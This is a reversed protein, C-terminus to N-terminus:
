DQQEADDVEEPLVGNEVLLEYCKQKILQVPIVNLKPKAGEMIPKSPPDPPVIALVMRLIQRGDLKIERLEKDCNRCWKHEPKADFLRKGCRMCFRMGTIIESM